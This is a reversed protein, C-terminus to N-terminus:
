VPKGGWRSRHGQESLEDARENGHIGAHGKCWAVSISPNQSLQLDIAQWLEASAIMRNRMKTNAGIKKWGNNKWIHRWRNCGKVAYVSDSWIVTHVERAHSNIWAAARLLAIVEMENNASDRVGGFDSAIEVRDRYVVFAWGGHGSGPEFCGDAFVELVESTEM